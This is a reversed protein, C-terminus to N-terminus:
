AVLLTSVRTAAEHLALDSQMSYARRMIKFSANDTIFIHDLEMPHSANTERAGAHGGADRTM